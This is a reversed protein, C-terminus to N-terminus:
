PAPATTQTQNQQTHTQHPPPTRVASVGAASSGCGALALFLVVAIAAAKMAGGRLRSRRLSRGIHAAGGCDPCTLGDPQDADGRLLRNQERLLATHERAAQEASSEARILSPGDGGIATMWHLTKRIRGM